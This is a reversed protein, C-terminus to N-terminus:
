GDLAGEWQEDEDDGPAYEDISGTGECFMCLMGTVPDRFHEDCEECPHSSILEAM